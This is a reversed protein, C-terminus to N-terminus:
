LNQMDARVIELCKRLKSDAEKMLSEVYDRAGNRLEKAYDKAADVTKQARDEAEKTVSHASVMESFQEEAKRIIEEADRRADNMISDKKDNIWEAQKIEDPLKVRVERILDFIDEKEVMVRSSFPVKSSNDVLDELTDILAMLEM